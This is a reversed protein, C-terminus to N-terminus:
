LRTKVLLDSVNEKLKGLIGQKMYFFITVNPYFLNVYSISYYGM